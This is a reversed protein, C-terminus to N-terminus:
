KGDQDAAKRKRGFIKGPWTIPNITDIIGAKVEAAVNARIKEIAKEVAYNYLKYGGFGILALM